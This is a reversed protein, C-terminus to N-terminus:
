AAGRGVPQIDFLRISRCRDCAETYDSRGPSLPVLSSTEFFRDEMMPQHYLNQQRAIDISIPCVPSFFLFARIGAFKRMANDEAAQRDYPFSHDSIRKRTLLLSPLGIKESLTATFM